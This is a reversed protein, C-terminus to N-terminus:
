FPRLFIISRLTSLLKESSDQNDEIKSHSKLLCYQPVPIKATPHDEMVLSDLKFKVIKVVDMMILTIEMMVDQPTGKVMVVSKLAFGAEQICIITQDANHVIMAIGVASVDM